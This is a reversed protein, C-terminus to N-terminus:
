FIDGTSANIESIEGAALQVGGTKQAPGSDWHNQVNVVNKIVGIAQGENLIAIGYRERLKIKRIDVSPDNWEDTTVDEDVILAGVERSDVMYIDTVPSSNPGGTPNYPVFPSVIIRFPTPLYSPLQPASTITQSYENVPSSPTVNQGTGMGLGGMNDWPTRGAPNGSYSAFMTGGGAQMAFARLTPDKVFMTWTLPHMILTDPIFGQAVIQGYTDFIDDMTISGNASGDFGRGTTPRGFIGNSINDNDFCVTGMSTIYDFIKKEKHRALARGAARLHMAIVDYQSYRIMEETVKVAIGSKGINAVVTGGAINLQTEPYEGGEPIDAASLAGTAPFSIVQGAKYNIRQLLSTGVLLPEVAEKVINSIVKPLYEPASAINIADTIPVKDGDPTHGGSRWVYEYEHFDKFEM